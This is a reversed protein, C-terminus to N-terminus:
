YIDLHLEEIIFVLPCIHLLINLLDFHETQKRKKTSQYYDQKEFVAESMQLNSEKRYRLQYIGAVTLPMFWESDGDVLASFPLEPNGQCNKSTLAVFSHLLASVLTCNAFKRNCM